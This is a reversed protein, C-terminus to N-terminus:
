KSTIVVSYKYANNSVGKSNNFEIFRKGPPKGKYQDYVYMGKRGYEDVGYGMFICAHKHKVGPGPYRGNEDMTAIATGPQLPPDGYGTIADGARWKATEPMGTLQKVLAVCEGYYGGAPDSAVATIQEYNSAVWDGGPQHTVTVGNPRTVTDAPQPDPSKPVPTAINANPTAEHAPLKPPMESNIRPTDPASGYPSPPMDGEAKSSCFQGGESCGAPVRPQDPNFEKVLQQWSWPTFCQPLLDLGKLMEAEDMGHDLLRKAMFLRRPAEEDELAQLGSFAIHIYALTIEGKCWCRSASRLNNLISPMVPQDHAVSLLALIREENGDIKLVPRGWDDRGSPVIITGAGLTLGNKHFTLHSSVPEYRGIKEWSKTLSQETIM